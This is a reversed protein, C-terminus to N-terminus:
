GQTLKDSLVKLQRKLLPTLEDLRGTLDILWEELDNGKDSKPVKGRKAEYIEGYVKRVSEWLHENHIALVALAGKNNAWDGLTLHLECQLDPSPPQQRLPLKKIRDNNEELETSVVRLANLVEREERQRNLLVSVWWTGGVTAGAGAVAALALELFM